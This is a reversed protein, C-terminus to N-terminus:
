GLEVADGRNEDTEHQGGDCREERALAFAQEDTLRRLTIQDVRNAADRSRNGADYASVTCQGRVQRRILDHNRQVELELVAQTYRLELLDDQFDLMTHARLMGFDRREEDLRLRLTGEFGRNSRSEPMSRPIAACSAGCCRRFSMQTALGMRVRLQLLRPIAMVSMLGANGCFSFIGM